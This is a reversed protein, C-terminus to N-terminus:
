GKYVRVAKIVMAFFAGNNAGLTFNQGVYNNPYKMETFYEGNVYVRMLMRYTGDTHTSDEFTMRVTKNAFMAADTYSNGSDDKPDNWSGAWTSWYSGNRYILGSDHPRFLIFRGHGTGEYNMNGTDFEYTYGSEFAIPFEAYDNASSITIGNSNQVASGNLTVASAGDVTDVLSSTFDWKHVFTKEAAVGTVTFTTTKGGYSVTITNSGEAITGSLTYGAVIESTGDSYYATVEVGTLASVATGAPVDGGFYSASISELTVNPRYSPDAAGCRTCVGDVYNHGTAPISQTYSRGCSCTYTRVGATTCTAATTVSSTYSHSHTDGGADDGSGTWLAELQAFTASMNATYAANRFLSLILTKEEPTIGGHAGGAELAGLRDLLEAYAVNAQDLNQLYYYNNSIQAGAAPNVEVAIKFPYTALVDQDADYFVVSALVTGACTLAQPALIAIVTNGSITTAASGDPLKDYLGKTGDPKQFAVAATTGAPIEWAIGKDFLDIELVRTNGEGQVAAVIPKCGARALDMCLKQTIRM